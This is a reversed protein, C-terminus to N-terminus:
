ENSEGRSSIQLPQSNLRLGKKALLEAIARRVVQGISTEEQDAFQKLAELQETKLRVPPLTSPYKPM